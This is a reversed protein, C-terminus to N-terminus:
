KGAARSQNKEGAVEFEVGRRAVRSAIWAGYDHGCAMRRREWLPEM